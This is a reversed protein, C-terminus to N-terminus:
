ESLLAKVWASMTYNAVEERNLRGKLLVHDITKQGSPGVAMIDFYNVVRTQGPRHARDESQQRIFLSPDNSAYIVHDAAALNFAMKGTSQTGIVFAPGKPATQPHLLRLTGDRDHQKQGGHLLGIAVQPFKESIAKAMAAVQPRFRCFLVLKLNPDVDLREPLWDLLLQQKESGIQQVAAPEFTDDEVM